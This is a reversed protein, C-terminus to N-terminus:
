SDPPSITDGGRSVCSLVNTVLRKGYNQASLSAVVFITVEVGMYTWFWNGWGVILISLVPLPFLLVTIAAIDRMALYDRHVGAVSPEWEVKKLLKYWARNQEFSNGSTFPAIHPSTMDVRPDSPGYVSFARTGPLPDLLRWFVLSAKVSSELMGSLLLALLPAFMGIAVSAALKEVEKVIDTLGVVGVSVVIFGVAQLILYPVVFKRNAEDKLNKEQAKM